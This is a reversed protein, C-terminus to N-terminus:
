LYILLCPLLRYFTYTLCSFEYLHAALFSDMMMLQSSLILLNQKMLHQKQMMLLFHQSRKEVKGELMQLYITSILFKYAQRSTYDFKYSLMIMLFQVPVSVLLFLFLLLSKINWDRLHHVKDFSLTMNSYPITSSFTWSM